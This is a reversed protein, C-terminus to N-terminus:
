YKSCQPHPFPLDFPACYLNFFFNGCSRTAIVSPVEKYHYNFGLQWYLCLCPENHNGLDSNEFVYSSRFKSRSSAPYDKDSKTSTTNINKIQIIIISYNKKKELLLRCVLNSQSQLESTHEESRPTFAPVCGSNIKKGISGLKETKVEGTCLHAPPPFEAMFGIHCM